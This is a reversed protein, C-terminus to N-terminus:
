RLPNDVCTPQGTVPKTSAFCFEDALLPVPNKVCTPHGTVPETAAFCFQAPFLDGLHDVCHGAVCLPNAAEAPLAALLLVACASLLPLALRMPVPAAM